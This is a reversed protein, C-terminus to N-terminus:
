LVERNCCCHALYCLSAGLFTNAAHLENIFTIQKHKYLNPRYFNRSYSKHLIVETVIKLKAKYTNIGQQYSLVAIQSKSCTLSVKDM